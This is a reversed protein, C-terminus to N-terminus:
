GAQAAVQEVVPQGQADINLTVALSAAPEQAQLWLTTQGSLSQAEVLLSYYSGCDLLLTSAGEPKQTLKWTQDQGAKQVYLTIRGQTDAEWSWEVPSDQSQGELVQAHNYQVIAVTGDTEVTVAMDLQFLLTETDDTAVCRLTVVDAGEKLPLIELLLKEGKTALSTQVVQGMAMAQEWRCQSVQSTDVEVTLAKDPQTPLRYSCLAEVQTTGKGCGSLALLCLILLICIRKKM